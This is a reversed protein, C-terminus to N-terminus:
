PARQLRLMLSDASGVRGQFIVSAEIPASASASVRANAMPRWADGAPAAQGAGLAVYSGISTALPAHSAAIPLQLVHWVAELPLVKAPPRGSDVGRQGM